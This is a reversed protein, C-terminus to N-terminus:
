HVLKPDRAIDHRDNELGRLSFAHRADRELDSLKRADHRIRDDKAEVDDGFVGRELAGLEVDDLDRTQKPAPTAIPFESHIPEKAGARAPASVRLQDAAVLEHDFRDIDLLRSSTHWM